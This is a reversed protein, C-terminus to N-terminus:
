DANVLPSNLHSSHFSSNLNGSTTKKDIPVSSDFVVTSTTVEPISYKRIETPNAPQGAENINAEAVVPSSLEIASAPRTVVVASLGSRDAAFVVPKTKVPPPM